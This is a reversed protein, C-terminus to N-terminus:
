QWTPLRIISKIATFAAQVEQTFPLGANQSVGLGASGTVCVKFRNFGLQKVKDLEASLIEKVKSYHRVYSKYFIENGDTVCVKVTTSGVDIGLLM